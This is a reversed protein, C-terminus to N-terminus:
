QLHFFKSFCQPAALLSRKSLTYTQNYVCLIWRSNERLRQIDVLIILNFKSKVPVHLYLALCWSGLFLFIPSGQKSYLHIKFSIFFSHYEM